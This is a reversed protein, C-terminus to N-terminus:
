KRPFCSMLFDNDLAELISNLSKQRKHCNNLPFSAQHTADQQLSTDCLEAQHFVGASQHHTLAKLDPDASYVTTIFYAKFQQALASHTSSM